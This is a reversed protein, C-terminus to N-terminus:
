KNKYTKCCSDTDGREYEVLDSLDNRSHPPWTYLATTLTQLRLLLGLVEIKEGFTTKVIKIERKMNCSSRKM